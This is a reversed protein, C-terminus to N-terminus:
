NSPSSREMASSCLASRHGPNPSSALCQNLLLSKTPFRSGPRVVKSYLLSPEFRSTPSVATSYRLRRDGEQRTYRPTSPPSSPAGSSHSRIEPTCHRMVSRTKRLTSLATPIVDFAVSQAGSIPRMNLNGFQCWQHRHAGPGSWSMLEDYFCRGLLRMFSVAWPM